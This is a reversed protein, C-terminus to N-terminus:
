NKLGLGGHTSLGMKSVSSVEIQQAPTNSNQLFKQLNLDCHIELYIIQL